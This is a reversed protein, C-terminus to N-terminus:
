VLLFLLFLGNNLNNLLIGDQLWWYLYNRLIINSNGWIHAILEQGFKNLGLFYSGQILDFYVHGIILGVNIPDIIHWWRLLEDILSGSSM